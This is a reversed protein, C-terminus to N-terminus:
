FSRNWKPLYGHQRVYASILEAEAESPLKSFDQEVTVTQWSRFRLAGIGGQRMKRKFFKERTEAKSKRATIRKKLTQQKWIAAVKHNSSRNRLTGSKGIYLIEKRHQIVYVGYGDPFKNKKRLSDALRFTFPGRKYSRDYKRLLADFRM